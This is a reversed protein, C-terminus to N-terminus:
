LGLYAKRVYDDRLFREPAGELVVRGKELLYARDAIELAHKIDQEVLLITTGREHLERVVRFVEAVLLSGNYGVGYFTSYSTGSNQKTWTIGDPSTLITGGKGVSVFQNGCWIVDFLSQSTGSDQIEWSEGNSSTIIVGDAGVAVFLGNGYAIANLDNGQPYPNVWSWEIDESAVTTKMFPTSILAGFTVFLAM